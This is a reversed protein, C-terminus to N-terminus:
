IRVEKPILNVIKEILLKDFVAKVPIYWLKENVFQKCKVADKETMLVLLDDPFKLDEAKYFYHDPFIHEIVEIGQERLMNFFRVPNGIGAVAHVKKNALQSLSIKRTEDQVSVIEDGSLRMTHQNAENSVGHLVMFDVENLRSLPERLPGAPLLHQNGFYRMGDILAIEIHRQLRYHQLGDDCIVINCQSKSLLTRVAEVRDICIVLPCQTRKALLAAEDGIEKVLSGAEVWYPTQQNKGGVGRTVIGPTYGLSRLHNALAIVFPTKGTGGVTINGVVIIPVSFSVSKKFKNRYLFRRLSVLARFLWSLPLLLLTLLTLSKQYWHKELNINM